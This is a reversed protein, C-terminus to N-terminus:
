DNLSSVFCRFMRSLRAIEDLHKAAAVFEERTAPIDERSSSLKSNSNSSSSSSKEETEVSNSNSSPTSSSSVSSQSLEAPPLFESVGSALEEIAGVLTGEIDVVFYFVAVATQVRTGHYM